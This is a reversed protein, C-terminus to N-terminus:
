PSPLYSAFYSRSLSPAIPNESKRIKLALKPLSTDEGPPSAVCTAMGSAFRRATMASLRPLALPAGIVCASIAVKVRRSAGFLFIRSRVPSSSAILRVSNSRPGSTTPPSHTFLLSIDLREGSDLKVLRSTSLSRLLLMDSTAGSDLKVLRSTSLSELFLMDSTVGSDLKVLRSTSDRESLLMDSTVGSDLKVLRSTSNRSLLLMDSTVGSDLKVLRTNSIRLLLLMDSTAGSDLKVLRSASNRSLLLIESRAGSTAFVPNPLPSSISTLLLGKLAVDILVCM